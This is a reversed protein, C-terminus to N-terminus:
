HWQAYETILPRKEVIDNNYNGLHGSYFRRMTHYLVINIINIISSRVFITLNNRGNNMGEITESVM